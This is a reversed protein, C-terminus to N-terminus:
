LAHTRSSSANVGSSRGGGGDGDACSPRCRGLVGVPGLLARRLTGPSRSLSLVRPEPVHGATLQWCKILARQRAARVAVTLTTIAAAASEQRSRTDHTRRGQGALLFQKARSLTNDVM